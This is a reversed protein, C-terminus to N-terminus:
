QNKLLTDLSKNSTKTTSTAISLKIQVATMQQMLMTSATVSEMPTMTGAHELFDLNMEHLQAFEGKQSEILRGVSNEGGPARAASATEASSRQMLDQFKQALDPSVAPPAAAGAGADAALRAIDGLPPVPLIPVTM